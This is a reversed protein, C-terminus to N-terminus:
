PNERPKEPKRGCPFSVPHTLQCPGVTIPMLQQPTGGRTAFTLYIYLYINMQVVTSTISQEFDILM